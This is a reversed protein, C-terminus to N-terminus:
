KKIFFALTEIHPTGPFFHYGETKTLKWDQSILEKCDRQFSTWGCSIYILEKVPSAALAKLFARDLGKRPPDVIVIDANQFRHLADEARCCDYTIKKQLEQPLHQYTKEFCKKSEPNSEILTIEKAEPLLCTGIIGIGAFYEVLSKCPPLASKLSEILREFLALNAQGFTGPLFYFHQGAIAEKLWEEGYLLRWDPSFITNRPLANFNLWLSHWFGAPSHAVLQDFLNQWKQIVGHSPPTALVFSGQVKGSSREVVFQLYRLEGSHSIEAYPAIGESIMWDKVLKQATNIAPHHAACQPIEYVDHSGENFLGILPAGRKGRVALKSRVRWHGHNGQHIPFLLGLSAFFQEYEAFSSSKNSCCPTHPCTM